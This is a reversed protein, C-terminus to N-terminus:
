ANLVRSDILLIVNIMKTKKRYCAGERERNKRSFDHNTFDIVNCFVHRNPLFCFCFCIYSGIKLKFTSFIKRM